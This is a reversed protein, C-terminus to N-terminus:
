TTTTTSHSSTSTTASTLIIIIRTSGSVATITINGTYNGKLQLTGVYTSDGGVSGSDGITLDPNTKYFNYVDAAAESTTYVAVMVGQSANALSGSGAPTAGSPVPFSSPWGPPLQGDLSLSVTGQDTKVDFNKGSVTTDTKKNGSDSSSSKSSSSCATFLVAVCVVASVWLARHKM